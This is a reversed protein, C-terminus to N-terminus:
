ARAGVIRGVAGFAPEILEAPASFMSCPTFGPFTNQSNRKNRPQGSFLQPVTTHYLLTAPEAMNDNIIYGEHLEQENAPNRHVPLLVARIHKEIM